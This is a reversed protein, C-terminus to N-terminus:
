QFQLTCAAGKEVWYEVELIRGCQSFLWSNEQGMAGFTYPLTEDILDQNKTMEPAIIQCGQQGIRENVVIMYITVPQATQSYLKVTSGLSSSVLSGGLPCKDDAQAREYSVSIAVCILGAALAPRARM